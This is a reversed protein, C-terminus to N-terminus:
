SRSGEVNTWVMVAGIVVRFGISPVAAPGVVDTAYAWLDVASSLFMYTALGTVVHWRLRRPDGVRLVAVASPVMSLLAAAVTRVLFETEATGAIGVVGLMRGPAVLYGVASGVLLVVVFIVLGDNIRKRNM